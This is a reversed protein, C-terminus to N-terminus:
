HGIRSGTLSFRVWGEGDLDATLTWGMAEAFARALNLGLGLHIGGSRASEKRWFRDFFRAVDEAGLQPAVNAVELVYGRPTVRGTVRVEGDPAAYEVANDFLNTVVASLMAEDAAVTAPAVTLRVRLGRAAARRQLAQWAEALAPGIEVATCEVRLQGHESRALALMRTALTEMQTAVALVEVEFAPDRQDPWKLACEALTRLEALPTRLEHALDASFRREREFSSELRGLLDNLRRAIPQLEAPLRDVAFRFALSDADIRAAQDGLEDLPALGRALVRPVVILIATLLLVGCGTVIAMLGALTENIGTRDTAVVLRLDSDVGGPIRGETVQFRVAAARGARGNPLRVDFYVPRAPTGGERWPLDAAALSPSRALTRAREDTVQFYNRAPRWRYTALFDPSFDFQVTGNEIEALAAVSVASVRLNTELSKMLVHRGAVYVGIMGVGVLAAFSLVLQRTLQRRISKM